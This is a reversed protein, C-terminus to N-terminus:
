PLARTATRCTVRGSANPGDCEHIGFVHTTCHGGTGAGADAGLIMSVLVPGVPAEITADAISARVKVSPQSRERHDHIRVYRLHQASGASCAASPLSGSRNRYSYSDRRSSVRWGDLREADCVPGIEGGPIPHNLRRLDVILGRARGLDQILLQFGRANLDLAQPLSESDDVHIRAGLRVRQRGPGDSLGSIVLKAFRIAMGGACIPDRDCADGIEDQDTDEQRVNEVEDCNDLSDPIEDGDTDAATAVVLSRVCSSDVPCDADTRCLGHTVNCYGEECTEGNSCDDDAECVNPLTEVCRGSSTFVTDAAGSGALPNSLRQIDRGADNCQGGDCDADSSCPGTSTKCTGSGQTGLVPACFNGTGCSHTEAAPDCDGGTEVLCGGPPLFCTGGDCNADSVCATGTTTCVGGSVAALVRGTAAQDDLAEAAIGRFAAAQAELISKANFVQLVLDGQDGDNDLDVGQEDEFTLFSVTDEGVRYPVRPDCAELRCPTVAQGTDILERSELDFVRLVDDSVDSDGNLDQGESGVSSEATRFALLRTGLVFDEAPEGVTVVEQMAVDYVQIVRDNQDNDGNLDSGSAAEPTSFAVYQGVAAVADAATKTNTWVGAGSAPHVHLVEDLGDGDENLDTGNEPVLAAVCDDSLAIRDAAIGLNPDAGPALRGQYLHVVLDNTDGDENLDTGDPFGIPDVDRESVLYAAKGNSVAVETAPGLIAPPLEGTADIVRLVTDALDGDGNLDNALDTPDVGRVIQNPAHTINVLNAAWSWHTVYRGDGSMAPYSPWGNSAEGTSSVNVRKTLGTLTDHVILDACSVINDPEGIACQNEDFPVLNTAESNFAVFRGDDSIAPPNNSGLFTFMYSYDNGQEGTSSVSVRTTSIEGPEDFIGDEDVDRDHKFLDGHGNTDGAVLDSSTSYFAVFRGDGSMAGTFCFKEEGTSTVCVPSTKVGGPEDFVGNGDFDRDHAYLNHGEFLVHRGDRSLYATSGGDQDTQLLKTERTAREYIYLDHDFEEDTDAPDLNYALSTFIVFRGDGSVDADGSFDNGLPAAPTARSILVTEIAGPEDFIGDEDLDRDHLYVQWNEWDADPVLNDSFSAFSVFRGDDSLQPNLSVGNSQTGDSAVSVLVAEGTVRDRVFVDPCSVLTVDDELLCNDNEDDDVIDGAASDFAVYRGDASISQDYSPVRWLSGTGDPRTAPTTIKRGAAAESTRFFVLGDSVVVSRGNVRPAADVTVPEPESMAQASAVRALRPRAGRSAPTAAEGLRFVRLITNFVEGDGNVDAYGELPEPELLAVVDGEVDVAPFSFPPQRVRVAARGKGDVSGITHVVGTKRDTLLVVDDTQDGDQNLDVNDIAEPVVFAFLEGTQNLGELPVPDQAVLRYGVCVSDPCDADTACLTGESAGGQCAGGQGFRPIVLPGHGAVLRTTFDFLAPGCEGGPCQDDGDCPSGSLDGGVCTAEGCSGAPCEADELCPQGALAGGVCQTFSASRRAVRLVTEPADATGFLTLEDAAEPDALPDFIPPLFGGEPSLAQLFGNGPVSIPQGSGPFAEVATSGRLLRAVPVRDGLLIGRWDMPLLLNGAADITGRMESAAATCPPVPDFCLAQYDNPPPLATFQPFFPDVTTGCTGDRSYLNDVCAVLGAQEVCPDSLLSCPFEEDTALIAIRAPGTFTLDDHDPLLLADTDPFRFRFRPGLPGPAIEMGIPQGNGNIQRCYGEPAGCQELETELGECDEALVVANTAGNPPTFVVAVRHASTDPDFGRSAGDCAPPLRVEVFDGPGAFPRDITGLAGRFSKATGPIIDCAAHAWSWLFPAVLAM